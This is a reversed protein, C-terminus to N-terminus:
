PALELARMRLRLGRVSVALARAAREMDGGADALAREIQAVTLDGAKRVLDSKKMLAYISSKAIGLAAAAKAPKFDCAILADRLETESISDLKRASSKPGTVTPKPAAGFPYDLHAETVQTVDDGHVVISRALNRLERVNGPWPYRLAGAVLAVSLWPAEGAPTVALAEGRFEHLMAVLLLGIDERRARLPPVVLSLARLREYLPRRFAADEVLAELHADTAAIVRVDVARTSEAGVPQVEKQELARLLVAQVDPTAEGIEDLFLTGGEARGFYGASADVAGTFAGRVHGFLASAATAAPIAAVNVSILPGDKRASREHIARAVLEKGSGSEGRLLVTMDLSAVRTIQRRLNHMAGSEGIMGMGDASRKSLPDALHLLLVVRDGIEITVGLALQERSVSCPADLLAGDVRVAARGPALTVTDDDNLRLSLANRSVHRDGIARFPGGAPAAFPPEGRGLQVSELLLAREGVRAPDPHHAITLAPATRSAGEQAVSVASLTTDGSPEAM